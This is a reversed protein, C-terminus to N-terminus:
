VNAFRGAPEVVIAAEALPKALPLVLTVTAAPVVVAAGAIVRLELLPVMVPVTFLEDPAAMEPAVTPNPPPVVVVLAVPV